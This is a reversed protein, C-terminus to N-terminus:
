RNFMLQSSGSQLKVVSMESSGARATMIRFTGDCPTTSNM